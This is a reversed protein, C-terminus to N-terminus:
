NFFFIQTILISLSFFGSLNKLYMSINKFAKRVHITGEPTAKQFLALAKKNIIYTYCPPKKVEAPKFLEKFRILNATGGYSINYYNKHENYFCDKMIFLHLKAPPSENEKYGKILMASTFHYFCQADKLIVAANILEENLYVGYIDCLNYKKGNRYIKLLASFLIFKYGKIKAVQKFLTKVDKLGSENELKVFKFAVRGALVIKRRCQGKLSALLKDEPQNYINWDSKEKQHFPFFLQRKFNSNNQLLNEFAENVPRIQLHMYRKQQAFKKLNELMVQLDFNEDLIIPGDDIIGTKFPFIGIEIIAAFALEKDTSVYKIFLTDYFLSDYEGTLYYPYQYLTANTQKLKENWSDIDTKKIVEWHM